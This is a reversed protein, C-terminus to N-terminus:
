GLGAKLLDHLHIAGILRRDDLVPLITIKASQMKAVAEVALRGLAITAPDRTMVSDITHDLPNSEVELQRRLDGDTFVGLLLDPNERDVIFASGLRKQGMLCVAERLSAGSALRPIGEGTHMIDEVELLLKRGISGSPHLEAFQERTLGRQKLIAIAVADGVALMATTSCTPVLSFPDAEQSVAITVLFNSKSALTSDGVGCFAAIPVNRRRLFPILALLEETEGSNSMLVALDDNGITGIDGHLAEAPHIFSSPTATSSLTASFKRGVLGSKGMGTVVVKGRCALVADVLPDTNGISNAVQRIAAIEKQLVDQVTETSSM